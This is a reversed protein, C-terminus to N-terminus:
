HSGTQAFSFLSHDVKKHDRMILHDRQHLRRYQLTSAFVIEVLTVGNLTCSYSIQFALSIWCLLLSMLCQWHPSLSVYSLLVFLIPPIKWLCFSFLTFNPCIFLFRMTWDCLAPNPVPHIIQLINQLSFSRSSGKQSKIQVLNEFASLRLEARESYSVLM